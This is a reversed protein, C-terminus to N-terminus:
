DLSCRRRIPKQNLNEVHLRVVRLCEIPSTLVGKAHWTATAQQRHICVEEPNRETWETSAVYSPPAWLRTLSPRSSRSRDRSQAVSLLCSSQIYRHREDLHCVSRTFSAPNGNTNDNANAADKATVFKPPVKRAAQLLGCLDSQTM